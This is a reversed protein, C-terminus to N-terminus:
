SRVDVRITVYGLSSTTGTTNKALVGFRVFRKTLPLTTFDGAVDPGGDAILANGLVPSAVQTWTLGDYSEEYYVEVSLVSTKRNLEISVRVSKVGSSPIAETFPHLFGTTDNAWVLTSESTYSNM